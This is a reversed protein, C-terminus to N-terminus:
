QPGGEARAGMRWEQLEDMTYPALVSIVTAGPELWARPMDTRDTMVVEV